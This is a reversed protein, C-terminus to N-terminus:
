EEERLNQIEVVIQELGFIIMLSASIPISIYTCNAPLPLTVMTKNVSRSVYNLGGILMVVAVALIALLVLIKSLRKTKGKFRSVLMDLSLHTHERVALASGVFIMWVFALRVLEEAWSCPIKLVFRCLVQWFTISVIILLLFFLLMHCLMQVGDLLKKM